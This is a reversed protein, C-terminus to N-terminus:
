RISNQLKQEWASFTRYQEAHKAHNIIINIVEDVEGLSHLTASTKFGAKNMRETWEGAIDNKAHDGAVFLCPILNVKKVKKAKMRKVTNEFSPYGEITSVYWNNYGNDGLVYDLMTYQANIAGKSGHCVLVNAEKEKGYAAAAAKVVQKYDDSSTLLPEGLRIQKFDSKHMEVVHRLAQMEIGDIINTSQILVHTYGEKKLQSLLMDPYAIHTVGDKALKNIIMRSTWAERFDVNPFAQQLRHNFRDITKRAEPESSGFHVAVVVAKDDQRMTEFLHQETEENQAHCPCLFCGIALLLSLFLYKM